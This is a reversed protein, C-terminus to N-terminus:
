GAKRGGGCGRRPIVIGAYKAITTRARDHSAASSYASGVVAQGLPGTVVLHGQGNIEVTGGARVVQAALERGEKTRFRRPKGPM